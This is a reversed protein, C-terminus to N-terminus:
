KALGIAKMTEGFNVDNTAMFNGFEEGPLFNAGFGQASLFQNYEESNYVKELAAILKDRIDDPLGKPAVIGRWAGFEWDSGTEEKLTPVDPFLKSREKSMYALSKVRGAEILARAEVLSSPVIETGGSLLEQLGSAAGDSPVWTVTSADIGESNLLGAIAVHWSSGQGSGTARFTGPQSTKIAELLEGLNQYESDASVQVGAPDQNMLALPTYVKYDLETLGLWHMLNVETTALGLTYGDPEADAMASHGVVGSGGTRNVVNVSQGLEKELGVAVVRAVADTGGGAGWAVLLTIPRDPYEAWAPMATASLLLAAIIGKAFKM